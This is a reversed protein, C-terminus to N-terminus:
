LENYIEKCTIKQSYGCDLVTNFSKKEKETLFYLNGPIAWNEILNTLNIETDICYLEKIIITNSNIFKVTAFMSIRDTNEGCVYFFLRKIKTGTLQRSINFSKLGDLIEIAKTESITYIGSNTKM